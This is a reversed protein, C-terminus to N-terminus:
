AVAHCHRMIEQRRLLMRRFVGLTFARRNAVLECKVILGVILGDCHCVKHAAYLKVHHNM